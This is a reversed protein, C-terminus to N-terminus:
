LIALLVEALEDFSACTVVPGIIEYDKAFMALELPSMDATHGLDTSDAAAYQVFISHLMRSKKKVARRVEPLHM